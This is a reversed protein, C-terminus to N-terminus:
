WGRQARDEFVLRLEWTGEVDVLASSNYDKVIRTSDPMNATAKRLDGLTMPLGGGEPRM